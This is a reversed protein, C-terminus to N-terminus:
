RALRQLLGGWGVHFRADEAGKLERVLAHDVTPARFV